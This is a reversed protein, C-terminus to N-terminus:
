RIGGFGIGGSSHDRWGTGLGRPPDSGDARQRVLAEDHPKDVARGPADVQGTKQDAASDVPRQKLGKSVVNIKSPGVDDWERGGWGVQHRAGGEAARATAAMRELVDPVDLVVTASTTTPERVAAAAFPTAVRAPARANAEEVRTMKKAMTTEKEARQELVCGAHIV